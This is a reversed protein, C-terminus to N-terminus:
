KSKSREQSEFWEDVKEKDFRYIKAGIRFCPIGNEVLKYVLQRQVGYMESLQKVSLYNM